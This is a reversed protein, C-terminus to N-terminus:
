FLRDFECLLTTLRALEPSGDFERIAQTGVSSSPPWPGDSELREQITPVLVWRLWQEYAMTNLGFAGMNEFAEDAPRVIDYTGTSKMEAVIEEFKNRISETRSM